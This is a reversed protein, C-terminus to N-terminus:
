YIDMSGDFIAGNETVLENENPRSFFIRFRLTNSSFRKQKLIFVLSRTTGM